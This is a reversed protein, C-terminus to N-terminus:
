ELQLIAPDGPRSTTESPLPRVTVPNGVALHGAPVDRTVVAGAGVVAGDGITVGKLVIARAGIFVGRGIRIPKAAGPGALEWTGTPGRVHFDTDMLMAEAGLITDEGVVISRAACLVAASLGSRPALFIEAGSCLTRLTAPRTNGLPNSRFASNLQVGDGLVIRSGPARALCPRGRFRVARGLEVGRLRAELKWLWECWRWRLEMVWRGASPVASGSNM